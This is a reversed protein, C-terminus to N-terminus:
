ILRLFRPDGLKNLGAGKTTVKDINLKRVDSIRTAIVVHVTCKISHTHTHTSTYTVSLEKIMTGSILVSLHNSQIFNISSLFMIRIYKLSGRLEVTVNHVFVHPTNFSPQLRCPPFCWCSCTSTRGDCCNLSLQSLGSWVFWPDRVFCSSRICCLCSPAFAVTWAAAALSGGPPYQLLRIYFFLFFHRM